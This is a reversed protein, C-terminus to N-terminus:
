DIWAIDIWRRWGRENIYGDFFGEYVEFRQQRTAKELWRVENNIRRPLVLFGYVFREDGQQPSPPITWRM